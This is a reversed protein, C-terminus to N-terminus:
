QTSVSRAGRRRQLWQALKARRLGVVKSHRRKGEESNCLASLIATKTVGRELEAVFHTLGDHDTDRGLAAAYAAKVFAEGDLRVIESATASAYASTYDEVPTSALNIEVLEGAALLEKFRSSYASGPKVAVLSRISRDKYLAVEGAHEGILEYIEQFGVNRLLDIVARYTPVLEIQKDGELSFNPDKGDYIHFGSFPHNQCISDLILFEKTVAFLDSMLEVPFTVHYLLGACLVIDASTTGRLERVNAVEFDVNKCLFTDRLFEAQRVNEPRLDVGRVSRFGAEAFELSFVGCHCAVDLVSTHCVTSDVVEAAFDVLLSSRYRHVRWDFELAEDIARTTVGNWDIQYAWPGVANIADRAPPTCKEAAFRREFRFPQITTRRGIIPLLYEPASLGHRKAWICFRTYFSINTEAAPVIADPYLHPNGVLM